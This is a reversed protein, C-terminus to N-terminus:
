GAMCLLWWRKPFGMLRDLGVGLDSSTIRARRRVALLDGKHPLIWECSRTYAYQAPSDSDHQRSRSIRQAALPNTSLESVNPLRTPFSKPCCRVFQRWNGGHMM